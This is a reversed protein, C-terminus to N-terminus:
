KRNLVEYYWAITHELGEQMNMKAKFGFYKKARSVDLMRKPQGDPKTKDWLIAGKYGVLDKIMNVLDKIKIEKGVGLNVPEARNYKEAALLIGDAADEVYLFERSAKGTWRRERGHYM